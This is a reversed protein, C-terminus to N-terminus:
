GICAIVAPADPAAPIKSADPVQVGVAASDDAANDDGGLPEVTVKVTVIRSLLPNSSNAPDGGLSAPFNADIAQAAVTASDGLSDTVKIPISTPGTGAPETLRFLAGVV